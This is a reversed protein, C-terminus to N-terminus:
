TLMVKSGAWAGLGATLASAAFNVGDNSLLSRGSVHRVGPAAHQVAKGTATCIGSYQVTAGLLSDIASGAAGLAAGLPILTVANLRPGGFAPDAASGLWMVLGIFAGGAVGAGCGELTV